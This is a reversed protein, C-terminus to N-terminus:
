TAADQADAAEVPNRRTAGSKITPKTKEADTEPFAARAAPIRQCGGPGGTFQAVKWSAGPGLRL